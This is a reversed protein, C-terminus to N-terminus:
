PIERRTVRAPALKGEHIDVAEQVSQILLDGFNESTVVEQGERRVEPTEHQPSGKEWHGCTDNAFFSVTRDFCPSEDNGCYTDAGMPDDGEAVIEVRAWKCGVCTRNYYACGDVVALLFRVPYDDKEAKERIAEVRAALEMLM